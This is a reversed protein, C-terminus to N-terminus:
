SSSLHSFNKFYEVLVHLRNIRVYIPRYNVQEIGNTYKPTKQHNYFGIDTKEHGRGM